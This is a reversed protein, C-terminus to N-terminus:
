HVGNEANEDARHEERKVPQYAIVPADAVTM